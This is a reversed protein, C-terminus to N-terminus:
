ADKMLLTKFKERKNNDERKHDKKSRRHDIDKLSPTGILLDVGEKIRDIPRHNGNCCYSKTINCGLSGLPAKYRDKQDDATHRDYRKHCRDNRRTHGLFKLLHLRLM